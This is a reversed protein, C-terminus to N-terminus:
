HLSVVLYREDEIPGGWYVPEKLPRVTASSRHELVLQTCQVSTLGAATSWRGEILLLRGNPRLLKVWQAVASSPDPLAWLVHRVLVVDCCNEEYPPDAADGQQFPVTVGATQAKTSAAEVMEESLDTGRVRYGSEALLVSLSGTGCGLDVVDAPAPPLHQLLLTRWAGRVAPDALGHDAEEDFRAAQSDWYDRTANPMQLDHRVAGEGPPWRGVTVGGSAVLHALLVGDALPPEESSDPVCGPYRHSCRRCSCVDLSFRSGRTRRSLHRNPGVESTSVLVLDREHATLGTEERLERLAGAEPTEAPLVRGSPINWHHSAWRHYREFVLAVQQQRVAIVGAYRSQAM